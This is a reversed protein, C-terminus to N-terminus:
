ELHFFKGCDICKKLKYDVDIIDNCSCSSVSTQLLAENIAKIISDKLSESVSNWEYNVFREYILEAETMKIM